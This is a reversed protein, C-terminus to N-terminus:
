DGVSQGVHSQEVNPVLSPALIAELEKCVELRGKFEGNEEFYFLRAWATIDKKFDDGPTPAMLTLTKWLVIINSISNHDPHSNVCGLLVRLPSELKRQWQSSCPAVKVHHGKVQTREHTFVPTGTTGGYKVHFTLLTMTSFFDGGAPVTVPDTSFAGM